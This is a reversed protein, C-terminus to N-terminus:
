ATVEMDASTCEGTQIVDPPCRLAVSLLVDDHQALSVLQLREGGPLSLARPAPALGAEFSRTDMGLGVGVAKLCAEKRTWCRLFASDRPLGAPLARLARVEDPGFHADALALADPMERLVEVDVGIEAQSSLALAGIGHSHSLNFHLAPAQELAPKGHAGASFRLAAAAIGTAEALLQRLAAHAAVYHRRDAEFVFRAARAQEDPSLAARWAEPVDQDLAFRWLRCGAFPSPLPQIRM